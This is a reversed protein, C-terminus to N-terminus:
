SIESELTSTSLAASESQQLFIKLALSSMGTVIGKWVPGWDIALSCTVDNPFACGPLSARCSQHEKSWQQARCPLPFDAPRSNVQDTLAQLMFAAGLTGKVLRCVHREQRDTTKSLANQYMTIYNHRMPLLGDQVTQSASM